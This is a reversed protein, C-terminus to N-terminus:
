KKPAATWSVCWGNPNIETDGPIIKCQGKDTASKGPIFHMCIGCHQGDKGPAEQYKLATRLATNANAFANGSLAVVPIAALATGVKLVRRRSHQIDSM